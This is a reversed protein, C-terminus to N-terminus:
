RLLRLEGTVCHMELSRQGWSYCEGDLAVMPISEESEVSIREAQRYVVMRHGIHGGRIAVPMLKLMDLKGTERIMLLDLKGDTINAEPAILTGGGIRDSNMGLIWYFRGTKTYGETSVTVTRCRMRSLALLFLLNYNSRLLSGHREREQLTETDIGFGASNIFRLDGLMGYDSVTASLGSLHSVREHMGTPFGLFGAFDNGTGSPLIALVQRSTDIHQFVRNLTGDGGIVVVLEHSAQSGSVVRRMDDLDEPCAIQVGPLVQPLLERYQELKSMQGRSLIALCAASGFERNISIGQM